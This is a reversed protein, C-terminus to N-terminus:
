DPQADMWARMAQSVKEPQEMPALHGCREVIKLRAHRIGAAMERHLDPPTLADEAGCLVLAPCSIRALTPRSDPRGMIAKQQR